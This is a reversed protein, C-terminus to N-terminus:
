PAFRWALKVLVVDTGPQHLVRGLEPALPGPAVTIDGHHNWVATLFSGPRVEWRAIASAILSRRIGDPRDFTLGGATVTTDGVMADLAAFGDAHADTVQQYRDYGGASVFPQAYLQVILKPSVAADLQLALAATRQHVRGVIYTPDAAAVYQWGITTDQYSAAVTGAVHDSARWTLAPAISVDRSGSGPEIALSADLGATTLRRTDTHASIRALERPPLALAPGGRLQETSLVRAEHQLTATVDYYNAFNLTAFGDVVAARREGGLSWGIGANDTGIRWSRLWDDNVFWQRSWQAAIVFWDSNRQFGLADVDFGATIGRLEIAGLLDGGVKAIRVDASAGALHTAGDAIRLRPADSRQLDHWPQAALAAIADATGRQETALLWARAEYTQDDWRLRADGGLAGDDRPQGLEADRHLGSAFAGASADGDAREQVVRAIVAQQPAAVRTGDSADAGLTWAALVGARLGGDTRGYLKTAGLISTAAPATAGPPITGEPARGIRRSYFAAEDAFSDGRSVLPLSTDFRFADLGETFFPRREPLFLEFSTLNLQAPDAEVQGFDPLVTAVLALKGGLGVDLDGGARPGDTSSVSVYPTVDFRRARPAAPVVLENFLSVVGALQPLRPSWNAVEGTRPNSRYVNLGWRLPEGPDPARFAFVSFPIRYEVTWGRDDVSTAAEWVGNWTSDYSTDGVFVGDVQVGAPNVGLSFATQRDRRSDIEVFCWDSNNEDDRRGIPAQIARPEPDDLRVGVYLADDDALVRVTTVLTALDGPRPRSQIFHEGVPAAAWAPEDLKGDIRIPGTARAATLSRPALLGTRPVALAPSSALVLVLPLRM